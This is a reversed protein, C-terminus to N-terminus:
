RRRYAVITLDDPKSPQGPTPASMRQRAQEAARQIAKHLPGKRVLEIVEPITLNDVLGDSAILVTDRRALTVVSGMEIRMEPSGVYNLIIHRDEHHMAEDHDLVGAEVALGVPSHPVTLLKIRGRQGVILIVSDGVHYPRVAHGTIELTAVTTGAGPAVEKIRDSANEIGSLIGSRLALDSKAAALLSEEISEITLRSATEGLRGGGMGDAVTLVQANDGFSHIAAADENASEKDPSRSSFVVAEGGPLLHRVVTDMNCERYVAPTVQLESM